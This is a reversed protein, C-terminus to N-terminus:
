PAPQPTLTKTDLGWSKCACELANYTLTVTRDGAGFVLGESNGQLALLKAWNDRLWCRSSGTYTAPCQSSGFLRFRRHGSVASPCANVDGCLWKNIPV